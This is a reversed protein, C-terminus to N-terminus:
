LIYKKEKSRNKQKRKKIERIDSKFEAQDNKVDALSIEGERIKDLLNFANGFEDFKANDTSRKYRYIM